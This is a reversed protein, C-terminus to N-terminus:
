IIQTTSLTRVYSQICCIFMVYDRDKPKRPKLEIHSKPKRPHAVILAAREEVVGGIEKMVDWEGGTVQEIYPKWFCGGICMCGSSPLQLTLRITPYGEVNWAASERFGFDCM